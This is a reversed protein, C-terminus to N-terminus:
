LIKELERYYTNVITTETEAIHPYAPVRGGNRKAHGHELLHPLGPLDKNYIIGKWEAGQNSKAAWKNNYASTWGKAYKGTGGLVEKSYARLMKAGRRTVDKAIKEAKEATENEYAALIHQVSKALEGPKYKRTSM